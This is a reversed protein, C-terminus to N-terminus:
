FLKKVYYCNRPGSKKRIKKCPYLETNLAEGLKVDSLKSQEERPVKKAEILLNLIERPQLWTGEGNEAQDFYMKIYKMSTTEEIYKRNYERFDNDWDDPSWRFDYDQNLLMLAEAWVQDIDVKKSYDQNIEELEFILWRRYGMNSTLFGGKEPTKNSSFCGSAIRKKRIPYVERPLYVDIQSASAMKKVTDTNRRNIGAMEDFYVLFNRAFSEELNFKQHDSPDAILSKLCEPVIYNFFYTKGIGEASHVLGM